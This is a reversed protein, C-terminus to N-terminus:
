VTSQSEVASPDSVWAGVLEQHNTIRIGGFDAPLRITDKAMEVFKPDVSSAQQERPWRAAGLWTLFGALGQKLLGVDSADLGLSIPTAVLKGKAWSAYLNQTVTGEKGYGEGLYLTKPDTWQEEQNLVKVTAETPFPTEGGVRQFIRWLFQLAEGRIAGEEEPRERSQRNAGAIVPRILASLSYEVVGFPRLQTQLERGEAELFGALYDRLQPHLFRITAWDPLKPMEGGAQLIANADAPLSAGEDDCLLTALSAGSLNKKSRILGVIGRAREELGLTEASLLRAQLEEITFASVELQAALRIEAESAVSIMEPFLRASWWSTEGNPPLKARAASQHGGGLVPILLKSKAAAKLSAPFGFKELESGWSGNPVVLRCGDWAGAGARVLRQQALEAIQKAAVLLIHRNARTDNVHKRTEDLEVTAHVLLPLPVGAETPFYCFLSSPSAAADDPVALTIQFRSKRRDAADLLEAPVTGEHLSATWESVESGDERLIARDDNRECHWVKAARGYVRFRLRVFWEEYLLRAAKELLGMRRRNNEMAEDYASLVDAIETQTQVSDPVRLKISLLKELSLNDQAAGQSVQQYRRKLTDLTYKIFRPDSKREDAIFGIVSDPFCADLGLIATEAINAAITICLTGPPWLKSQALGAESYTQEYTTVYLEAHKVDATQIFPFQGGYLHEANRPRHRSKGRGVSGLEDLSRDSWKM